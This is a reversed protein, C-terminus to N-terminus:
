EWCNLIPSEVQDTRPQRANEDASVSAANPVDALVTKREDEGALIERGEHLAIDVHRGFDQALAFGDEADVRRVRQGQRSFPRPRRGCDRRYRQAATGSRQATTGFRQATTGVGTGARNPLRDAARARCDADRVM